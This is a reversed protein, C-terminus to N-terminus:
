VGRWYNLPPQAFHYHDPSALGSVYHAPKKPIFLEMNVYFLDLTYYGENKEVKRRRRLQSILQHM